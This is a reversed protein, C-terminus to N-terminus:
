QKKSLITLTKRARSVAVYFNKRGSYTSLDFAPNADVVTVHDFELGKVLLTTGAMFHGTRRGGRLRVSNRVKEMAESVTIGREVSMEIANRIAFYQDHLLLRIGNIRDLARLCNLLKMPCPESLYETIASSLEQVVLRDEDRKKTKVGRCTLWNDVETKFFLSTALSYLMTMASRQSLSDVLRSANYFVRDDIPEVITCRGGFRRAVLKRQNKHTTIVLRSEDLGGDKCYKPVASYIDDTDLIIRKVTKLASWDIKWPPTELAKRIMLIDRGLEENNELWRWPTDLSFTKFENLDKEFDVIPGNFDFIGQLPDGFVWLPIGKAISVIFCHQSQTCDQYEDVIVGDYSIQMVEQIKANSALELMRNSLWRFYDEQNLSQRPIKDEITYSHSIKQGFASITTLEFRASPIDSESMKDRLAAVGAHTHTLVLYRGSLCKLCEIITHTKGYGAPAILCAREQSLFRTYDFSM